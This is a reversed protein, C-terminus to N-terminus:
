RFISCLVVGDAEAQEGAAWAFLDIGQKSVRGESVLIRGLSNIYYEVVPQETEVRGM